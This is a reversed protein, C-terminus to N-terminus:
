GAEFTLAILGALPASDTPAALADKGGVGEVLFHLVAVPETVSALVAGALLVLLALVAKPLASVGVLGGLAALDDGEGLFL